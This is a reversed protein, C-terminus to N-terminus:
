FKMNEVERMFWNVARQKTAVKPLMVKLAVQKNTRKDRALYVLSFDGRGLEKLLLDDGLTGIHSENAVAKLLFAQLMKWLNAQNSPIVPPTQYEATKVM